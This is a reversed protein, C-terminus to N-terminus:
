NREHEDGEQYFGPHDELIFRKTKCRESILIARIRDILKELDDNLVVYEFRRYENLESRANRLRRQLSEESESGRDRLRKELIHLSPPMIFILVADPLKLNLQAAGQVDIDLIVDNEELLEDLDTRKTGYYFGHVVAWELFEGRDIMEKFAEETIFHYDQIDSSGPRPLRTTYSISHKVNPFRALLAQIVTTKGGGSPATLILCIGTQKM